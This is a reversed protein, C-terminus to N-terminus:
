VLGLIKSLGYMITIICITAIIYIIITELYKIM